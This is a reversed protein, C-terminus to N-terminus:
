KMRTAFHLCDFDYYIFTYYKYIYINIIDINYLINYTKFHITTEYMLGDDTSDGPERGGVAAYLMLKLITYYTIITIIFLILCKVNNHFACTYM